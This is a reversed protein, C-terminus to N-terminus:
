IINFLESLLNEKKCIYFFYGLCYTIFIKRLSIYKHNSNPGSLYYKNCLITFLSLPRRTRM